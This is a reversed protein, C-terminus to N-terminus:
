KCLTCCFYEDSEILYEKETPRTKICKEVFDNSMIQYAPISHLDSQKKRFKLLLNRFQETQTETLAEVPLEEKVEAPGTWTLQVCKIKKAIPLPLGIDSSSRKVNFPKILDSNNTNKRSFNVDFHIIM